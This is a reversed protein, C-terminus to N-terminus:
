RFRQGDFKLSAGNARWWAAIIKAAEGPPKGEIRSPDFTARSWFIGLGYMFFAQGKLGAYLDAVHLAADFAFKHGLEALTNCMQELQYLEEESKPDKYDLLYRKVEDAHGPQGLRLLAYALRAREPGQQAAHKKKLQGVVAPKLFPRKAIEGMFRDVVYQDPDAALGVVGLLEGQHLVPMLASLADARRQTSASHLEADLLSKGARSHLKGALELAAQYRVDGAVSKDGVLRVLTSRAKERALLQVALVPLYRKKQDAYRTRAMHELYPLKDFEGAQKLQDARTDLYGLGCIPTSLDKELKALHGADLAPAAGATAAVLLVAALFRLKRAMPM